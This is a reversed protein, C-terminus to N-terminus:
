EIVLIVFYHDLPAIKRVIEGNKTISPLVILALM